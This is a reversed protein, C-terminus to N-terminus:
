DVEKKKNKKLGLDKRVQAHWKKDYACPDPSVLRNLHKEYIEVKDSLHVVTAWLRDPDDRLEEGEQIRIRISDPREDIIEERTFPTAETTM